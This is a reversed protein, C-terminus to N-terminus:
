RRLSVILHDSHLETLVFRLSSTNDIQMGGLKIRSKKIRSISCGSDFEGTLINVRKERKVFDTRDEPIGIM